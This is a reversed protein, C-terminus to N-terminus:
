LLDSGHPKESFYHSIRSYEKLFDYGRETVQYLRNGTEEETVMTLLGNQELFKLYKELQRHSLNSRYMVHTKRKGSGAVKLIEAFIEM